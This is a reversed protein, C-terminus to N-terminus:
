PWTITVQPTANYTGVAASSQGHPIKGYVPFNQSGSSSFTFPVTLTGSTGDGWIETYGADIYLNYYLTNGGSPMTRASFSGTGVALSITGTTPGTCSVLISGLATEDATAHTLPGYSGFTISASLVSCTAAGCAPLVLGCCVLFAFCKALLKM